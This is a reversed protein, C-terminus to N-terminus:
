NEDWYSQNYGLKTAADRENQTLEEWYKENSDPAESEEEWSAENWGLTVWLAQEVENMDTWSLDDWTDGPNSAINRISSM